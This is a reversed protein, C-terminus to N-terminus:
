STSLRRTKTVTSARAQRPDRKRNRLRTLFSGISVRILTYPMWVRIWVYIHLGALDNTCRVRLGNSRTITTAWPRGSSVSSTRSCVKIAACGGSIEGGLEASPTDQTDVERAFAEYARSVPTRQRLGHAFLRRSAPSTDTFFTPPTTGRM